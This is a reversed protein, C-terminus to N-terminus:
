EDFDSFIEGLEKKNQMVLDIEPNGSPKLSSSEQKEESSSSSSSFLDERIISVQPKVLSGSEEDEFTDFSKESNMRDKSTTKVLLTSNHDKPETAFFHNGSNANVSHFSSSPQKNTGNDEDFTDEFSSSVQKSSNKSKEKSTSINSKQKNISSNFSSTSEKEFSGFSNHSSTKQPTKPREEQKQPIKDPKSTIPSFDKSNQQKESFSDSAFSTSPTRSHKPSTNTEKISSERSFSSSLSSNSKSQHKSTTPTINPSFRTKKAETPTTEKSSRPSEAIKEADFGFDINETEIKLAKNKFTNNEEKPDQNKPSAPEDQIESLFPSNTPSVFTTKRKPKVASQPTQRFQQKNRNLSKTTKRTPTLSTAPRRTQKRSYENAQLKEKHKTRDEKVRRTTKLIEEEQDNFTEAWLSFDSSARLQHNLIPESQSTQKRTSRRATSEELMKSREGLAEREKLRYKARREEYLLIRGATKPKSTDVVHEAKSLKVMHISYHRKKEELDLFESVVPPVRYM